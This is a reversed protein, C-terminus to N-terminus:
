WIREMTRSEPYFKEKAERLLKFSQEFDMKHESLIPKWPATMFGVVQEDPANEKFYEVLDSTNYDCQNRVSACTVYQYGEKMLPLAVKRLNVLFPDEEVYKIGM